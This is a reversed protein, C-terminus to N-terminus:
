LLSDKSKKDNKRHKRFFIYKLLSYLGSESFKEDLIEGFLNKYLNKEGEYDSNFNKTKLNNSCEMNQSIEKAKSIEQLTLNSSDGFEEGKLIRSIENELTNEYVRSFRKFQIKKTFIEQNTEFKKDFRNETFNQEKDYYQQEHNENTERMNERGTSNSVLLKAPLESLYNDREYIKKEESCKNTNNSEQSYNHFTYLKSNHVSAILEKQEINNNQENDNINRESLPTEIRNIIEECHNKHIFNKKLIGISHIPQVGPLDKM